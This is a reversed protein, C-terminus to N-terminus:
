KFSVEIKKHKVAQLVPVEIVLVGQNITAKINEVDVSDNIALERYFEGWFCEELILTLDANESYPKRRVGKITLVNNELSIDLDKPDVGAVTSIIYIVNSKKYVDVTLQPVEEPKWSLNEEIEEITNNQSVINVQPM